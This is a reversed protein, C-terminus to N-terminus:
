FLGVVETARAQDEGRKKLEEVVKEMMSRSEGARAGLITEMAQTYM